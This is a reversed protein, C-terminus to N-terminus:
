AGRYEVKETFLSNQGTSGSAPFRLNIWSGKRVRRALAAAIKDDKGETSLGKSELAKVVHKLKRKNSHNFLGELILGELTQYM